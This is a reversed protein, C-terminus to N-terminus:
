VFKKENLMKKSWKMLYEMHGSDANPQENVIVFGCYKYFNVASKNEKYVCLELCPYLSKCYDLLQRGIGKGQCDDLVFLAGIFSNNIISIFAKVANKEEYVFTASHPLYQNKVVNYNEMWYQESIFSHATINTKLWIDMIEEIQSKDMSKIM